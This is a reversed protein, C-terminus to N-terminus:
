IFSAPQLLDITCNIFSIELYMRNWEMRTEIGKDLPDSQILSTNAWGNGNFGKNGTNSSASAVSSTRSILARTNMVLRYSWNLWKVTEGKLYKFPSTKIFRLTMSPSYRNGTDMVLYCKPGICCLSSFSKKNWFVRCDLALIWSVLLPYGASSYKALSQWGHDIM